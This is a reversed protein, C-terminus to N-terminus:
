NEQKKAKSRKFLDRWGRKSKIQEKIPAPVAEPVPPARRIVIPRGTVATTTGSVMTGINDASGININPNIQGINPNSITNSNINVTPNDYTRLDVHGIPNARVFVTQYLCDDDWPGPSIWEHDYGMVNVKTDVRYWHNAQFKDGTWTNPTMFKTNSRFISTLVGVGPHTPNSAGTLQPDPGSGAYSGHVKLNIERTDPRWARVEALDALLAQQIPTDLLVRLNYTSAPTSSRQAKISSQLAEATWASCSTPKAGTPPFTQSLASQTITVTGTPTTLNVGAAFATSDNPDLSLTPDIGKITFTEVPYPFQHQEGAQLRVGQGFNSPPFELLYGSTDNVTQLSPMTVSEFKAGTVAYSYGTAIPPDIWFETPCVDGAPITFTFTENGTQTPMMPNNEATCIQTTPTTSGGSNGSSQSSDLTITQFGQSFGTWPIQTNAILRDAYYRVKLQRVPESLDSAPLTYAKSCTLINQSRTCDSQPSVQIIPGTDSSLEILENVYPPQQLSQGPTITFNVMQTPANVSYITPNPTIAIQYPTLATISNTPPISSLTPLISSSSGSGSSSSAGTSGAQGYMVFSDKLYGEFGPKTVYYRGTVIVSSNVMDATSLPYDFYCDLDWQSTRNCDNSMDVFMPASNPASIELYEQSFPSSAQWSQINPSAKMRAHPNSTSYQGRENLNITGPSIAVTGDAPMQANVSLPAIATFSLLIVSLSLRSLYRSQM